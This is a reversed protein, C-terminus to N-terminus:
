PYSTTRAASSRASPSSSSSSLSAARSQSSADPCGPTTLCTVQVAALAKTTALPPPDNTRTVRIVAVIAGSRVFAASTYRVEFGDQDTDHAVTVVAEDGLGEIGDKMSMAIVGDGDGLRAATERQWISAQDADLFRVLDVDFGLAYDRDSAAIETASTFVDTAAGYTAVRAAFEETSEYTLRMDEGDRRLYAGTSVANERPVPHVVRLSLRPAGRRLVREIRALLRDALVEVEALAPEAGTWDRLLVRATLRGNRFGLALEQYPTGAQPDRAAVRVLRFEDGILRTGTVASLPGTPYVDPVLTFAQAAGTPDAYATIEIEAQRGLNSRHPDWLAGFAITYGQQWGAARLAARVADLEEGAGQPWIARTALDDVSLMQGVDLGLGDWGAASLDDPTLTM